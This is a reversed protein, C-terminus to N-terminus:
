FQQRRLATGRCQGRCFQGAAPFRWSKAREAGVRLMDSNIDSVVVEAYGVSANVIREAIDGTGGAM